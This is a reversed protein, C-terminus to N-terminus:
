PKSARRLQRAVISSSQFYEKATASCPAIEGVGIVEPAIFPGLGASM